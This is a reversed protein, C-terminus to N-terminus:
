GVVLGRPRREMDDAINSALARVRETSEQRRSRRGHEVLREKETMTMARARMIRHVADDVDTDEIRRPNKRTAPDHFLPIETVAKVFRGEEIYGLCLDAAHTDVWAACGTRRMVADAVRRLESARHELWTPM